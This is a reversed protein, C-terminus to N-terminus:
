LCPRGRHAHQFVPSACAIRKSAIYGSHAMAARSCSRADTRGGSSRAKVPSRSLRSRSISRRCSEYTSDTALRLTTEIGPCDACPLVGRYVGAWDLSNASTHQADVPVQECAALTLGALLTM